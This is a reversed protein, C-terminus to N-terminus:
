RISSLSGVPSGPWLGAASAEVVLVSEVLAGLGAVRRRRTVLAAPVGDSDATPASATAVSGAVGGWFRVRVRRLAASGAALSVEAFSSGAALWGACLWDGGAREAARSEDAITGAPVTGAVPASPDDAGALFTVRDRRLAAPGAAVSDGAVPGATVPGVTVPGVAVPGVAVPGVAVPGTAVADGAVSGVTLSSVAATDVEPSAAAVSAPPDAVGALFAVRDRRLTAVLSDAPALTSADATGGGATGGSATGGDATGGGTAGGSAGGATTNTGGVAV